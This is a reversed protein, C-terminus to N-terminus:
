HTHPREKRAHTLADQEFNLRQRPAREESQAEEIPASTPLGLTRAKREVKPEGADQGFDLRRPM